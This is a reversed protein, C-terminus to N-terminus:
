CPVAERKSAESSTEWGAAAAINQGVASRLNPRGHEHTAPQLKPVACSRPSASWDHADRATLVERTSGRAAAGKAGASGLPQRPGAQQETAAAARGHARALGARSHMLGPKPKAQSESSAQTESGRPRGSCSLIPEPMPFTPVDFALSRSCAGAKTSPALRSMPSARCAEPAAAPPPKVEHQRAPTRSGAATAPVADIRPSSAISDCPGTAGYLKPQLPPACRCDLLHSGSTRLVCEETSWLICGFPLQKFNIHDFCRDHLELPPLKQPEDFVARRPGGQPGEVRGASTKAMSCTM